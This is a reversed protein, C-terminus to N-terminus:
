LKWAKAGVVVTALLSLGFLTWTDSIKTSFQRVWEQVAFQADTDLFTPLHATGYSTLFVVGIGIFVLGSLMSLTNTRIPGLTVERGRLWRDPQLKEWVLALFFLPTAMGLAYSAMILAGYAASGSVAATTLVAGLLPGACFGAFGYVAGMLFTSGRHSIKSLWPINFGFGLFSYVGLAIIVGGGITVAEERHAALVSALGTGIPVLTACLGLFFVFTRALLRRKSTFAYAFFAPLLLASCPSILSLVGGLFAGVLGVSVVGSTIIM